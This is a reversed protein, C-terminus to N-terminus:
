DELELGEEEPNELGEIDESLDENELKEKSGKKKGKKKEDKIIELPDKNKNQTRSRELFGYVKGQASGRILKEIATRAGRIEESTGLVYVTNEKLKVACDSLKEILKKTKGQTGILRARVEALNKRRTMDKLYMVEFLYEPDILLLSTEVDFGAEVAELVKEADYINEEKGQITVQKGELELGVKLKKQLKPLNAMVERINNIYITKM